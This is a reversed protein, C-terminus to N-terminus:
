GKKKGKFLRKSIKALRPRKYKKDSPPAVTGNKVNDAPVMPIPGDDPSAVEDMGSYGENEVFFYAKSDFSEICNILMM